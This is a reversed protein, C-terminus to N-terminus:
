RERDAKKGIAASGGVSVLKPLFTRIDWFKDVSLDQAFICCNSIYCRLLSAAGKRHKPPLIQLAFVHYM